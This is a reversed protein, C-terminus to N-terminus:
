AIWDTNDIFFKDEDSVYILFKTGTKLKEPEIKFGHEKMISVAINLELGQYEQGEKYYPRCFKIFDKKSLGVGNDEVCLVKGEM